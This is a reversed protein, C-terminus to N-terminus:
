QDRLFALFNGKEQATCERGITWKCNRLFWKEIKRASGLRPADDEDVEVPRATPSMPNILKGTRWHKGAQKLDTGHCTQCSRAAPEGERKIEFLEGTPKGNEALPGTHRAIWLAKGDEASFPGAGQEQYKALQEDIVSGGEAFAVGAFGLMLTALFLQIHRNM